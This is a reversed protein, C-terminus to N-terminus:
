TPDAFSSCTARKKFYFFPILKQFCFDLVEIPDPMSVFDMRAMKMFRCLWHGFRQRRPDPWVGNTLRYRIINYISEIGTRVGALFGEPRTTVVVHCGACRFRKMWVASTLNEFYRFVYGHGWMPRQCKECFCSGWKFGKGQESLLRLCIKRLLIMNAWLFAPAQLM